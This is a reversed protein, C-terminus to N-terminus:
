LEFTEHRFDVGYQMSLAAAQEVMPAPGCVFVLAKHGYAALRAVSGEVNPRGQKVPYHLPHHQPHHSTNGNTRLDTPSNSKSRNRSSLRETKGNGIERERGTEYESDSGRGIRNEVCGDIDLM